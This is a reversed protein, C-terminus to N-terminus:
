YYFRHLGFDGRCEKSKAWYPESMKKYAYFHTMPESCASEGLEFVRYVAEKTIPPVTGSYPEAYQYPATVIDTLSEGWLASRDRITQAVAMQGILTDGRAEAAVVREILDKEEPTLNKKAEGQVESTVESALKGYESEKPEAGGHACRLVVLIVILLVLLINKLIDRRKRRSYREKQAKEIVYRALVEKKDM